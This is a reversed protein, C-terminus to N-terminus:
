TWPRGCSGCQDKPVDRWWVFNFISRDVVREGCHSCRIAKMRGLILFFWGVGGLLLWDYTYVALLGFGIIGLPLFVLTLRRFESRPSRAKKV